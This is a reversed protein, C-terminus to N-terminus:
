RAFDTAAIESRASSIAFTSLQCPSSLCYSIRSRDASRFALSSPLKKMSTGADNQRRMLKPMECSLDNQVSIWTIKFPHLLDKSVLILLGSQNIGADVGPPGSPMM